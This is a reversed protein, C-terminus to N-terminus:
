KKKKKKVKVKSKEKKNSKYKKVRKDILTILTDSPISFCKQNSGDHKCVNLVGKGHLNNCVKYTHYKSIQGKKRIQAVTKSENGDQSLRSLVLQESKSLSDFWLDFILELEKDNDVSNDVNPYIWDALNKRIQQIKAFM